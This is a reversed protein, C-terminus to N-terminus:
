PVCSPMDCVAWCAAGAYFVSGGGLLSPNELNWCIDLGSAATLSCELFDPARAWPEALPEPLKRRKRM